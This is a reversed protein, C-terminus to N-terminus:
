ADNDSGDTHILIELMTTAERRDVIGSKMWSRLCVSAEVTEAKLKMRNSSGFVDRESTVFGRQYIASTAQAAHIDRAMRALRPWRASKFRWYAIIDTDRRECSESLYQELEDMEESEVPLNKYKDWLKKM